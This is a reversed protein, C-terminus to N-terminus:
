PIDNWNEIAEVVMEMAMSRSGKVLVWDGPAIRQKLDAIIEKRTGCITDGLAMGAALAGTAMEKALPGAFYLRHTASRGALEGVQRHLAPSQEGLEAMSGLVAISRGGKCLSSLTELAAAMSVPNANYTDDILHIGRATQKLGLRGAIPTFRELGRRIAKPSLNLAAGVAAAALANAVMFRGPTRLHVEITGTPLTLGFHTEAGETRIGSARISADASEGFRIQAGPHKKALQRSWPDDANLVAIGGPEIKGLLEGKAAMVAEMSGLGELHAPAVNTIVGVRPACIGALRAIEGPRNMGMEVVAWQHEPCLGLLTLPLGIQNNFNGRTAWTCFGQAVVEAAMARTSTKGNSGTIAVVPVQCRKRHFAALDGLARTTDAVTLCTVGAAQWRDLPLSSQSGAAVLVGRGGGAVASEVFRHGDHTEGCIAVFFQDPLLTRSDIAIGSFVATDPGCLARAGTARRIDDTTWRTLPNSIM